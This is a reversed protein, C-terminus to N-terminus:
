EVKVRQVGVDVPVDLDMDEDVIRAQDRRAKRQAKEDAELRTMRTGLLIDWQTFYPQAYNAKIGHSQHHIDHFDANNSFFLQCPDWWLRYGSHDDVTKFTSVGFLLTAQRVTMGSLEHAVTAGLTDFLFGELPHNYLAGFAYPVYLRHHVSHVHKYLFRSTHFLRHLFYQWTDIIFFALFFQAIPYGWWYTWRVLAEGHKLLLDEGSRPGLVMLVINAVKPAMGAMRAVHDVYVERRLITEDDEFWVIGLITQIVHQVVVARVVEGITAKNRKVVEPSEHIRRKEFYPLQANDLALFVLSLLWYVLVPVAVSLYKDSIFSLLSPRLTHYFPAQLTTPTVSLLLTDNRASLLDPLLRSALTPISLM